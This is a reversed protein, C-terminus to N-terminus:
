GLLSASEADLFLVAHPQNRLISAPCETNIPGRVARRVAEAKRVEPVVVQLSRPAVLAPVTLTIAHTPVDELTPFHGEGVQQARCAEDLEVVKVWAPDEFDAVPPDNFALHGNEGIGMCVLDIPAERLLAEYRRCEAELDEADGRIYHVAKPHYATEIRERIWRRFSAPHNAPIGVYEDMHFVTIKEWPIEMQERLAAVFGLQSNGTAFIARATGKYEIAATPARATNAAAAAAMEQGSAFVYVQMQGARFAERAEIM